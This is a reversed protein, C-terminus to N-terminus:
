LNDSATMTEILSKFGSESFVSLLNTMKRIREMDYGGYVLEMYEEFKMKVMIKVLLPDVPKGAYKDFFSQYSVAFKKEILESKFSEYATGKSCDFLLRFIDKHASIFEISHLENETSTAINALEREIVSDYMSNFAEITPQVIISFLDEKKDFYSYFAGTTVNAKKCINRLSAREFGKELFEEKGSNIIAQRIDFSKSNM